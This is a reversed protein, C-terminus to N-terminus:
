PSIEFNIPVALYNFTHPIFNLNKDFYGPVFTGTNNYYGPIFHGIPNKDGPIFEGTNHNTYGINHSIRKLYLNRYDITYDHSIHYGSSSSSSPNTFNCHNHYRSKSNTRFRDRVPSIPYGSSSSSSPNQEYRVIFDYGENVSNISTENVFKENSPHIYKIKFGLLNHNFFSKLMKLPFITNFDGLLIIKSIKNQTNNNLILLLQQFFTEHGNVPIHLNVYMVNNIIIINVRNFQHSEKIQEIKQRSNDNKYITLLYKQDYFDSLCYFKKHFNKLCTSDDMELMNYILTINRLLECQHMKNDQVHSTTSGTAYMVRHFEIPKRYQIIYHRLWETIIGNVEQFCLVFDNRKECFESILKHIYNIKLFLVDISMDVQTHGRYELDKVREPEYELNYTFLIKGDSDICQRPSHDSLRDEFNTEDFLHRYRDQNYLDKFIIMLKKKRQNTSNELAQYYKNQLMKNHINTNETPIQPHINTNGTPIQPHINTNGTPIQPHINTNKNQQQQPHINTNGTPIQPHINTNKNQQQPPVGGYYNKQLNLYKEKYEIYKEFYNSM